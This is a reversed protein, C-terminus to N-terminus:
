RRDGGLSDCGSDGIGDRRVPAIFLVGYLKMDFGIGLQVEEVFCGVGKQEASVVQTVGIGEVLQLLFITSQLLEQFAAGEIGRDEVGPAHDQLGSLFEVM